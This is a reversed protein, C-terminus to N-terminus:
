YSIEMNSNPLHLDLSFGVTNRWYFCPETILCPIIRFCLCCAGVLLVGPMSVEATDEGPRQEWGFWDWSSRCMDLERGTSCKM